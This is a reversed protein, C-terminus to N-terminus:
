HQKLHHKGMLTRLTCRAMQVNRQRLKARKEIEKRENETIRLVKENTTVYSAGGAKINGAVVADTKELLKVVQADDDEGWTSTDLLHYRHGCKELIAKLFGHSAIYGEVSSGRLKEHKTFIVITNRWVNDHILELPGEVTWERGRHSNLPIVMLFVHPGPPCMDMCVAMNSNLLGPDGVSYHVWREPTNVVIVKRGNDLARQRRVCMKVDRSIDFLQRGLITNGTM